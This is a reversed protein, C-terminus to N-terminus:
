FFVGATGLLVGLFIDVPVGSTLLNMVPNIHSVSESLILFVWSLVKSAVQTRFESSVALPTTSSAEVRVGWYVGSFGSSVKVFM